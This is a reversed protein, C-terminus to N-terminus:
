KTGDRSSFAVLALLVILAAALAIAEMTHMGSATGKARENRM